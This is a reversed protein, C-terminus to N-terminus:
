KPNHLGKLLRQGFGGPLVRFNGQLTFDNFQVRFKFKLDGFVVLQRLRDTEFTTGLELMNSGEELSAEISILYNLNIYINYHFM